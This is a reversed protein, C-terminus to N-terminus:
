AVEWWDMSFSAPTKLGDRLVRVIHERSKHLSRGFGVVTGLGNGTRSSYGFARRGEETLKVRQGTTFKARANKM